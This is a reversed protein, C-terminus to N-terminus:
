LTQGATLGSYMNTHLIDIRSVVEDNVSEYFVYCLISCLVVYVNLRDGLFSGLGVRADVIRKRRRGELRSKEGFLVRLCSKHKNEIQM